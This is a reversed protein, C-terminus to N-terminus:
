RKRGRKSLNVCENSCYIGETKKVPKGCGPLKCVPRVKRQSIGHCTISCTVSKPRGCPKGCVVCARREPKVRGPKSYVKKINEDADRRISYWIGRIERIHGRLGELRLRARVADPMIRPNISLLERTTNPFTLNV